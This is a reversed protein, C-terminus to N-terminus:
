CFVWYLSLFNINIRGNCILCTIYTEILADIKKLRPTILSSFFVLGYLSTKERLLFWEAPSDRARRSWPVNIRANLWVNDRRLSRPSVGCQRRRVVLAFRICHRGGWLCLQEFFLSNKGVGDHESCGNEVGEQEEWAEIQDSASLCRSLPPRTHITQQSTHLQKWKSLPLRDIFPAQYTSEHVYQCTLM